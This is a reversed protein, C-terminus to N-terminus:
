IGYYEESISELTGYTNFVGNQFELGVGRVQVDIKKRNDMIDNRICILM